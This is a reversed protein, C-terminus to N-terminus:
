PVQTSCTMAATRDTGCHGAWQLRIVRAPAGRRPSTTMQHYGVYRVSSSCAANAPSSSPSLPHKITRASLLANGSGPLRDPEPPRYGGHGPYVSHDGLDRPGAIVLKDCSPGQRGAASAEPLKGSVANSGAVPATALEAEYLAVPAEAEAIFLGFVQPLMGSARTECYVPVGDPM